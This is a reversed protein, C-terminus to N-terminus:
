DHRFCLCLLCREDISFPILRLRDCNFGFQYAGTCGRLVSQPMSSDVASRASSSPTNPPISPSWIASSLFDEPPPSSQSLLHFRQRMKSVYVPPEDKFAPSPTQTLPPCSTRDAAIFLRRIKRKTGDLRNLLM